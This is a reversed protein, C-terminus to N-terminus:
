QLHHKTKFEDKDSLGINKVFAVEGFVRNFYYIM